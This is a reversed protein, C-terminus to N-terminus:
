STIMTGVPRCHQVPTACVSCCFTNDAIINGRLCYYCYVHNCNTSHPMSPEHECLACRSYDGITTEANGPILKRWWNRLTFLNFHPLVFFIAESFGHWLIERNMYEYNTTRLVQRQTPVMTLALLREKLSPYSGRILFAIFNFLSLTRVFSLIWNLLKELSAVRLPLVLSLLDFREKVWDMMVLGIFLAIRQWQTMPQLGKTKYTLDLMMQGFSRSEDYISYKWILFRVLLKLEPKFKLLKISPLNKFVELFQHQLLDYLEDDLETTDLQNVRLVLEEKVSAASKM